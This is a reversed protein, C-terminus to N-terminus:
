LPRPWILAIDSTCPVRVPEPLCVGAASCCFSTVMKSTSPPAAVTFQFHPVPDIVHLDSLEVTFPHDYIDEPLHLRSLIFLFVSIVNASRAFPSDRVTTDTRPLLAIVRRSISIPTIGPTATRITLDAGNPSGM